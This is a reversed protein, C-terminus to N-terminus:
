AMSQTRTRMERKEYWWANTTNIFCSLQLMKTHYKHFKKFLRLVYLVLLIVVFWKVKAYNIRQLIKM